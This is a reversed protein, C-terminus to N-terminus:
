ENAAIDRGHATLAWIVTVDIVIILISGVPYFPLFLFNAVASIIAMIVGLTRAWVAGSFLGFGASLVVLGIVLHIWGWASVDVEFAYKQSVVFFENEFIAALGAIVQFAGIMLMIFAAFFTFGVAWSSRRAEPRGSVQEM